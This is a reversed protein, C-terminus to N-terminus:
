PQLMTPSFMRYPSWLSTFKLAEYQTHKEPSRYATPAHHGGRGRAYVRWWGAPQKFEFGMNPRVIKSLSGEFVSSCM